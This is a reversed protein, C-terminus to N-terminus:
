LTKCNSVLRNTPAAFKKQGWAFLRASIATIFILHTDPLMSNFWRSENNFSLTCLAHLEHDTLHVEMFYLETVLLTTSVCELVLINTVFVLEVFNLNYRAMAQIYIGVPFSETCECLKIHCSAILQAYQITHLTSSYGVKWLLHLCSGINNQKWKLRSDCSNNGYWGLVSVRKYISFIYLRLISIKPKLGVGGTKNELM